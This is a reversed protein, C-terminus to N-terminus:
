LEISTYEDPLSWIVPELWVDAAKGKVCSEEFSPYKVEQLPCFFLWSSGHLSSNKKKQITFHTRHQPLNNM